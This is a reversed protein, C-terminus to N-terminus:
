DDDEDEDEDAADEFPNDEPKEGYVDKYVKNYVKAWEDRSYIAFNTALVMVMDEMDDEDIDSEDELRTTIEDIFNQAKQKDEESLFEYQFLKM